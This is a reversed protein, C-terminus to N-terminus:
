NGIKKAVRREQPDAPPKEGTAFPRLPVPEDSGLIEAELDARLLNSRATRSRNKANRGLMGSSINQQASATSHIRELEHGSFIGARQRTGEMVLSNALVQVIWFAIGMLVLLASGFFLLSKRELSM